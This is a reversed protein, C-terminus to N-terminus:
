LLFKPDHVILSGKLKMAAEWMKSVKKKKRNRRKPKSKKEKQYKKEEKM